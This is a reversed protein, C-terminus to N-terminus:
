RNVQRWACPKNHIQCRTITKFNLFVLLIDGFFSLLAKETKPRTLDVELKKRPKTINPCLSGRPLM